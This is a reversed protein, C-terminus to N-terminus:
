SNSMPLQAIYLPPRVLASTSVSSSLYQPCSLRVSSCVGHSGVSKSSSSTPLQASSFVSRRRDNAPILVFDSHLYPYCKGVDALVHRAGRSHKGAYEISMSSILLAVRRTHLPVCRRLSCRHLVRKPVWESVLFFDPLRLHSVDAEHRRSSITPPVTRITTAM